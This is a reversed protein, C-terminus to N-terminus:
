FNPCVLTEHGFQGCRNCNASTLTESMDIIDSQSLSIDITNATKQPARTTTSATNRSTQNTQSNKNNPPNSYRQGKNQSSYQNSHFQHNSKQNENSFASDNRNSSSSSTSQPPDANELNRPYRSFSNSSSRNWSRNFTSTNTFQSSPRHNASSNSNKTVNSTTELSMNSLQILEEAEKAFELFEATSMPKRKRVELQISPKTKSLLNKLKTAESMEPDAERCLKLVDNYFNRIFQNEGQSYAELKKFALEEHFLSTFARRIEIVFAKWSTISAKNNKFWELADGRLSYSILDLRTSDSIHAIEFLHEVDELWKKVDDKAGKFTKPNKILDAVIAKRIDNLTPDHFSSSLNDTSTVTHTYKEGFSNTVDKHVVNVPVFTSQNNNNTSTLDFLRDTRSENSTNKHHSESFTNVKNPDIKQFQRSLNDSFDYENLLFEYFDDYNRIKSRNKMYKRKVEDAVLLSISNFRANRGIKNHQFFQETKDLWSSVDDKGSYPAIHQLIFSDFEDSINTLDDDAPNIFSESTQENIFNSHNDTHVSTNIGRSINRINTDFRTIPKSNSSQKHDDRMDDSYESEEDIISVLRQPLISKRRNCNKKAGTDMQLIQTSSFEPKPENSSSSWSGITNLTQMLTDDEPDDM